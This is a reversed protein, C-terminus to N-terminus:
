HGIGFFSCREHIHDLLFKTFIDGDKGSTFVSDLV